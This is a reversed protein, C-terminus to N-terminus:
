KNLNSSDNLNSNSDDLRNNDNSKPTAPFDSKDPSTIDTSESTSSTTKSTKKHKKEVPKDIDSGSSKQIDKTDVSGPVAGSSGSMQSGSQDVKNGEVSGSSGSTGMTDSKNGVTLDKDNGIDSGPNGLNQDIDGAKKQDKTLSNDGPLPNIGTDGPVNAGSTNQALATATWGVPLAAFLGIQILRGIRRNM